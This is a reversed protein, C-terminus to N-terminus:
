PTTPVALFGMALRATCVLASQACQNSRLQSLSIYGLSLARFALRPISETGHQAGARRLASIMVACPPLQLRGDPIQARAGLERLHAAHRNRRALLIPSQCYGALDGGAGSGRPFGHHKAGPSPSRDDGILRFGYRVPKRKAKM